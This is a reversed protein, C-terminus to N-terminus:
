ALLLTGSGDSRAVNGSRHQIFTFFEQTSFYPARQTPTLTPTLTPTPPSVGSPIGGHHFLTNLSPLLLGPSPNSQYALSPGNHEDVADIPAIQGPYSNESPSYFLAGIADLETTDVGTHQIIPPTPIEHYSEMRAIIRHYDGDSSSYFSSM